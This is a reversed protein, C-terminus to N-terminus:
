TEAGAKSPVIHRAAILELSIEGVEGRSAVGGAPEPKQYDPAEPIWRRRTRRGVRGGGGSRELTHRFRACERYPQRGSIVPFVSPM